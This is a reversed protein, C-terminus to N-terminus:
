LLVLIGVALVVRYVLFVAYSLKRLARLILDIAIWGSVLSAIAAPKDGTPKYDSVLEFKPM